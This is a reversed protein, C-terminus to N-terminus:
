AWDRFYFIGSLKRSSGFGAQKLAIGFFIGIILSVILANSSDLTNLSYFTEFM